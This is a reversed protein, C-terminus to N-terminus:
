FYFVFWFAATGVSKITHQGGRRLIHRRVLRAPILQLRFVVATADSQTDLESQRDLLKTALAGAPANV